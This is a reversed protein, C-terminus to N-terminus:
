ETPWHRNGAEALKDGLRQSIRITLNPVRNMQLLYYNAFTGRSATVQVEDWPLFFSPHGYAFPAFLDWKMGEANASLILGGGYSVWGFEASCFRFTTGTFTMELPYRQALEHWGSMRGILTLLIAWFLLVSVAILLVILWVPM